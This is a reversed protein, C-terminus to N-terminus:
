LSDSPRITICIAIACPLMVFWDQSFLMFVSAKWGTVENIFGATYIDTFINEKRSHLYWNLAGKIQEYIIIFLLQLVSM